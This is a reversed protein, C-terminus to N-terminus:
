HLLLPPDGLISVQNVESSVAAKSRDMSGSATLDVPEQGANPAVIPVSTAIGNDRIRASVYTEVAAREIDAEVTIKSIGLHPTGAFRRVM